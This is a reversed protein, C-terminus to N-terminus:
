SPVSIRERAARTVTELLPTSRSARRHKSETETERNESEAERRRSRAAEDADVVAMGPQEALAIERENFDPVNVM